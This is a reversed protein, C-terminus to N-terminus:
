LNFCAKQVNSPLVSDKQTAQSAYCAYLSWIPVVKALEVQNWEWITGSKGLQYHDHKQRHWLGHWRRQWHHWVKPNGDIVKFPHKLEMWLKCFPLYNCPRKERAGPDSYLGWEWDLIDGPPTSENKRCVYARVWCRGKVWFFILFKLCGLFINSIKAVWFFIGLEKGQGWSFVKFHM